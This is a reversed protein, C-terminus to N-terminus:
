LGKILWIACIVYANGCTAKVQRRLHASNRMDKGGIAAVIVGNRIIGRV